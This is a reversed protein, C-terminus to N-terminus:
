QASAIDQALREIWKNNWKTWLVVSVSSNQRWRWKKWHPSQLKSDTGRWPPPAPSQAWFPLGVGTGPKISCIQIQLDLAWATNWSRCHSALCSRTSKRPKLSFLVRKASQRCPSRCPQSGLQGCCSEANTVPTDDIMNQPLSLTFDLFTTTLNLSVSVLSLYEQVHFFKPSTADVLGKQCYEM